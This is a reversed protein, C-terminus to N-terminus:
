GSQKCPYATFDTFVKRRFFNYSKKFDAFYRSYHGIVNGNKELM